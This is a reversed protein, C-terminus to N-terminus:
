WSISSIPGLGASPLVIVMSLLRLQKVGAKRVFVHSVSLPRPLPSVRLDESNDDEDDDARGM